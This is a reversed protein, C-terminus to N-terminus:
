LLLRLIIPFLTYFYSWIKEVTVLSLISILHLVAFDETIQKRRSGQKGAQPKPQNAGCLRRQGHGIQRWAM